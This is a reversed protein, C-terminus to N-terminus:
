DKKRAPAGKNKKRFWRKMFFERKNDNNRIATKKSKKMRKQVTKTQIRKHHAKVKKREAKELKRKERAEHKRQKRIRIEERASPEGPGTGKNQAEYASSFILLLILVFLKKLM